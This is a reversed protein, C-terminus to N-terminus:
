NKGPGFDELPIQGSVENNVETIAEYEPKYRFVIVASGVILALGCWTWFEPFHHWIVIEWFVACVMQAYSMYAGRAARERQIGMTLFLQMFFGSLGILAFLFWQKSTQPIQFGMSPIAVIGILSVVSTTFSFYTVSLIAHARHGIHRIIIYVVSGCFIGFLAVLSAILREQPDSSEVQKDLNGGESRDGFLFAPRVIVVVGCFSILAGIAEVFSYRERLFMWALVGTFSPGLFTILTSDAVSLYMLSYYLGFVGFFGTCGRLLLWKRMEPPGFPAHPIESKKLQIYILTGAFTVSMRVALIQLPKIPEEFEPDTELLKTSVMMVSNLFNSVLLYLLGVNPKLYENSIRVLGTDDREDKSLDWNGNGEMEFESSIGM